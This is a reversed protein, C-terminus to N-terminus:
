FWDYIRESDYRGDFDIVRFEITPLMVFMIHNLCQVYLSAALQNFADVNLRLDQIPIVWTRDAMKIVMQEHALMRFVYRLRTEIGTRLEPGYVNFYVFKVVANHPTLTSPLCATHVGCQQPLRDSTAYRALLWKSRLIVWTSSGDAMFHQRLSRPLREPIVPLSFDKMYWCQDVADESYQVFSHYVIDNLWANLQFGYSWGSVDGLNLVDQYDQLFQPLPEYVLQNNQRRVRVVAVVQEGQATELYYFVRRESIDSPNRIIDWHLFPVRVAMRCVFGFHTFILVCCVVFFLGLERFFCDSRMVYIVSADSACRLLREFGLASACHAALPSSAARVGRIGWFMGGLVGTSFVM